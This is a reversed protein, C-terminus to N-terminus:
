RLIAVAETLDEIRKTLNERQERTQFSEGAIADLREPELSLVWQESFLSLPSTDGSILGHTIAQLYVNDIFRDRAVQYYSKILDHVDEVVYKGSDKDRLVSKVAQLSVATYKRGMHNGSDVVSKLEGKLKNEARASQSEALQSYLVDNLTYPQGEREVRVLFRTQRLGDEYRALIADLIQSLLEERVKRASCVTELASILFDHIIYIIRSVYFEAQAMWKSTQQKVATSFLAPNFSILETGRSHRQIGRIWDLIGEIPDDSNLERVIVSDLDPYQRLLIEKDDSDSNSRDVASDDATDEDDEDDEEIFEYTHASLTFTTKFDDTANLVSTILRFKDDDFVASSSYDAKLGARVLQQFESAVHVLFQQQEQVTQRSQGLKAFDEQARNLLQRTESRLKPFARDTLDGLLHQLRQRLAVVGLREPPLMCWPEDKFLVDREDDGFASGEDDGGRSRVLHYGLNLPRKEGRVLSCVVNKGSTERVLDPKTLIGLTRQGTPDYQEALALIEQTAIDVVCPLVALIITQDDRIYKQVMSRVMAKDTETTVNNTTIRFIGPVDIVTLYDENPGCKEIKLVDESFTKTGDPNQATRIGMLKNVEELITPLEDHLESTTSVSRHYKELEDKETESAGPGPIVTVGIYTESERRHTIQTAYRTCLEQGRPFPIGTLSELLSSKGSSQDGVAVLQPLPLYKGINKDRLLDIKRLRAPSTLLDSQQAEAHAAM